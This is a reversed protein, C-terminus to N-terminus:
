FFFSLASHNLYVLNFYCELLIVLPRPWQFDTVAQRFWLKEVTAPNNELTNTLKFANNTNSGNKLSEFNYM